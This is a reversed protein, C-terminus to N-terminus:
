PELNPFEYNMTYTNLYLSILIDLPKQYATEPMDAGQTPKDDGLTTIRTIGRSQTLSVGTRVVRKGTGM